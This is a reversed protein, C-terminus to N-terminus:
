CGESAEFRGSAKSEDAKWAEQSTAAQGKEKDPTTSPKTEQGTAPKSQPAPAAAKSDAAKAPQCMGSTVSFGLVMVLCLGIVAFRKM